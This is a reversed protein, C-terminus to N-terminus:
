PRDLKLDGIFFLGILAPLAINILWLILSAAIIPSTVLGFLEFYIIGGFERVGLDSFFNFTPLVSKMLFIFAVGMFQHWISLDVEFVSLLMLFQLSFVAYRLFSLGLLQTYQTKSISLLLEFYSKFHKIKNGYKYFVFGMLLLLGVGGLTLGLPIESLYALWDFDISYQISGLAILGFLLTPLMQFSRAALIPGLVKKRDKHDISWIRAFYDGVAHPTVFGLSVGSLVGPIAAKITLQKLPSVVVKWKLVEMLWNIPMFLTVLVIIYYNSQYTGFSTILQEREEYIREFLFFIIFLTILIKISILFYKKM